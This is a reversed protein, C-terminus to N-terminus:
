LGIIGAIAAVTAGAGADRVRGGEFVACTIYCSVTCGGACALVCELQPDVGSMPFLIM